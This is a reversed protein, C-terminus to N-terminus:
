IAHKKIDELRTSVNEILTAGHSSFIMMEYLKGALDNIDTQRVGLADLLLTDSKSATNTQLAGNIYVNILDAENRTIMIDYITDAAITVDLDVNGATGIKINMQTASTMRIFNNASTNSAIISENSLSDFQVILGIIFPGSLSINGSALQLHHNNIGDFSVAGGTSTYSPCESTTAQVMHKANHSTDSWEALAEIDAYGGVSKSGRRFEYFAELTVENTPYWAKTNVINARM